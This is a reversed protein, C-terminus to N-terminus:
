MGANTGAQRVTSHKCLWIHSNCLLLCKATSRTCYSSLFHGFDETAAVLNKKLHGRKCQELSSSYRRHLICARDCRRGENLATSVRVLDSPWIWVPTPQNIKEHRTKTHACCPLSSRISVLITEWKPAVSSYTLLSLYISGKQTPLFWRTCLLKLYLLLVGLLM